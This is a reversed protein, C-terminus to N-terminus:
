FLGVSFDLAICPKKYCYQLALQSQSFSSILFLFGTYLNNRHRQRLPPFILYSKNKQTYSLTCIVYSISKRGQKRLSLSHFGKEVSDMFNHLHFVVPLTVQLKENPRASKEILRDMDTSIKRDTIQAYIQTSAISAHGTMKAINEIPVGAELIPTGFSHRGVHTTLPIAIVARLQLTKLLFRYTEYSINPM